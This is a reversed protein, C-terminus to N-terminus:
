GPPSGRLPTKPPPVDRYGFIDLHPDGQSSDRNVKNAPKPIWFDAERRKFRRAADLWLARALKALLRM